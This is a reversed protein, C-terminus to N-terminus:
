VEALRSTLVQRAPGDGPVLDATCVIDPDIVLPADPASDELVADRQLKAIRWRTLLCTETTFPRATPASPAAVPQPVTPVATYGFLANLNAESLANAGSSLYLRAITDGDAPSIPLVGLRAALAAREASSGAAAAAVEALSTGVAGLLAEY